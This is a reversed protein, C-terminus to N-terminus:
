KVATRTIFSMILIITFFIRFCVSSKQLLVLFSIWDVISSIVWLKVSHENFNSVNQRSSLFFTSWSNSLREFFTNSITVSIGLIGNLYKSSFWFFILGDNIGFDIKAYLFYAVVFNLFLLKLFCWGSICEINLFVFYPIILWTPLWISAKLPWEKAMMFDNLSWKM